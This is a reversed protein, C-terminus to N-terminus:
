LGARGALRDVADDMAAEIEPDRSGRRPFLSRRASLDRRRLVTGQEAALGGSLAGAGGRPHVFPRAAAVLADAAQQCAADIERNLTQKADAVAAAYETVGRIKIDITAM